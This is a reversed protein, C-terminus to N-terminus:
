RMFYALSDTFFDVEVPLSNRVRCMRSETEYYGYNTSHNNKSFLLQSRTLHPLNINIHSFLEPSDVIGRLVKYLPVCPWCKKERGTETIWVSGWHRGSSSRQRYIDEEWGCYGVTIMRFVSSCLMVTLLMIFGNHPNWFVTECSKLEKTLNNRTICFIFGM